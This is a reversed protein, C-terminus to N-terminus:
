PPTEGTPRLLRLIRRSFDDPDFPKEIYDAFGMGMARARDGPMAFSTAAVIPINRTGADGLLVRAAEYGDMEPMQIDMLILDPLADRAMEVGSRGDKAVLVELGAQELIFGALYRNNANDEILLVRRKANM